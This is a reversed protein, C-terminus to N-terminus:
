WRSNQSKNAVEGSGDVEVETEAVVRNGSKCICRLLSHYSEVVVVIM